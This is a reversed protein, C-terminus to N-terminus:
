RPRPSPLRVRIAVIREPKLKRESVHDLVAITFWRTTIWYAGNECQRRCRWVKEAM